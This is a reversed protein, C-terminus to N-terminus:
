PTRRPYGPSHPRWHKAASHCVPCDPVELVWSIQISREGDRTRTPTRRIFSDCMWQHNASCTVIREGMAELDGVAAKGM